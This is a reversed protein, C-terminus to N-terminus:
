YAHFMGYIRCKCDKNSLVGFCKHSSLEKGGECSNKVIVEIETETWLKANESKLYRCVNKNEPLKSPQVCIVQKDHHGKTMFAQGNLVYINSSKTPSGRAHRETIFDWTETGFGRRECIIGENDIKQQYSINAQQM